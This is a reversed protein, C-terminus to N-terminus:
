LSNLLLIFLAAVFLEVNGKRLGDCSNMRVNIFYLIKSCEVEYNTMGDRSYMILRCDAKKTVYLRRRTTPDKITTQKWDIFTNQGDKTKEETDERPLPIDAIPRPEESWLSVDVKDEMMKRTNYDHIFYHLFAHAIHCYIALTETLEIDEIRLWCQEARENRNPLDLPVPLIVYPKRVNTEENELAVTFPIIFLILLM